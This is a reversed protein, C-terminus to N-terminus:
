SAVHIQASYTMQPSVGASNLNNWLANWAGRPTLTSGDLDNEDLPGEFFMPMGQTNTSYQSIQAWEQAQATNYIEPMPESPKAGWSKTWVGLQTWGNNCSGYPPCGGADGYDILFADGGGSFGSIWALTDTQSAYGLEMDNAGGVHVQASWGNQTVTTIVQNVAAAWAAGGASNVSAGSNNTGIGLKLVPSSGSCDWYGNAFSTALSEVQAYTVYVATGRALLTGTNDATQGGFDLVV